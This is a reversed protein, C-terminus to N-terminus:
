DLAGAAVLCTSNTRAQWTAIWKKRVAFADELSTPLHALSEIEADNPTMGFTGYFHQLEDGSLFGESNVDIDENHADALLALSESDPDSVTCVGQYTLTVGRSELEPIDECLATEGLPNRHLRVHDGAGLGTNAVLPSIDVIDNIHLRLNKLSELGTLAGLNVIQNDNLFLHTLATLGGLPTIDSIENVQLLLRKLATLGALPTVDSIQNQQLRLVTLNTLGALPTLDSIQNVQLFLETLATLNELPELDSIQNVQLRLRQLNTLDSLPGLDSINNAQLYLFELNVLAALPALDSIQNNQLFLRQLQVLDALASLDSVQNNALNLVRLDFAHEMGALSEVSLGQLDLRRLGAFDDTVLDGEPKNLASRIAAELNSDPFDATAPLGICSDDHLVAVGRSELEPVDGCLAQQTLPNRQLNVLAGSTLGANDVLAGIDSIENRHLQLHVLNTLGELATVDSILNARLFLETLNTLGVLPGLDSIANDFLRLEALSTLGALPGLDSIQNAHLYLLTLQTLGALPGLDSIANNHLRLETLNILDELASLDTIQNQDLFLEELVTLGSLPTLNSIENFNLRLSRLNSLGSLPGLNAIQNRQLYLEELNSLSALATLDSIQNSLLHLLTLNSLGALPGLDIIENGHLWLFQLTSLDTLPSLDSIQNGRLDLSEMHIAYELGTLDEIDLLSADLLTLTAMHTSMIDDEPIGLAARVAAELNADNFEVLVPAPPAECITEIQGRIEGQPRTVSRIVLYHPASAFDDYQALTVETEIPHEPAGLDLVEPGTAGTVGSHIAVSTPDQVSHEVTIRVIGDVVDEPTAHFWATGSASTIVPPVQQSGGLPFECYISYTTKAATLSAGTVTQFFARVSASEEAVARQSGQDAHAQVSMSAAMLLSVMSLIVTSLSKPRNSAVCGNANDFM